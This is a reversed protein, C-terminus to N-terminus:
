WNVRFNQEKQELVTNKLVFKSDLKVDIEDLRGTFNAGFRIDFDFEKEDDEKKWELSGSIYTHSTSWKRKNQVSYTSITDISHRM